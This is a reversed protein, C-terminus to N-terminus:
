THQADVITDAGWSAENFGYTDDGPGGVSRDNGAMGSLGDNGAAGRMTDKGAGGRMADNAATGTLTDAKRTGVCSGDARNPCSIKAALAVGSSVLLALAVAMLMAVTKRM